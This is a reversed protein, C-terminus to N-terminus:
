QTPSRRGRRPSMALEGLVLARSRSAAAVWSPLDVDRARRELRHALETAEASRGLGLRAEVADTSARFAIADRLPEGDRLTVLPELADLAARCNGLSLELLGLAAQMRARTVLDRGRTLEISRREAARAEEVNGVHAEVLIRGVLTWAMGLQGAWLAEAELSDALARDYNGQRCELEVLYILPVARSAHGLALGRQYAEELAERAEALRDANLLVAGRWTTPSNILSLPEKLTQESSRKKWCRSRVSQGGTLRPSRERPSRKPSHQPPVQRRRPRSRPARMLWRLRASAKRLQIMSVDAHLAALLESDGGAEEVARLLTADDQVMFGLLAFAGARPRGAPLTAVLRHLIEVTRGTDGAPGTYRAAQIARRTADEVQAAPTLRKAREALEAATEPVGRQAARNAAAELSAAVTEDPEDYGRGIHLAREEPDQVLEALARHAAKREETSAGGYVAAELLPHTFRLRDGELELVRAELAEQVGEDAVAARLLFATPKGLAATYLLTRRAGASLSALRDHVAHTPLHTPPQV